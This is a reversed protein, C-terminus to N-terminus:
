GEVEENQYRRFFRGVPLGALLFAAIRAVVPATDKDNQCGRVNM